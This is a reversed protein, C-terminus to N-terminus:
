FGCVLSFQILNAFIILRRIERTFGAFAFHFPIYFDGTTVRVNPKEHVAALAPFQAKAIIFKLLYPFGTRPNL